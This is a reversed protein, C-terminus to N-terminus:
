VNRGWMWQSISQIFEIFEIFVYSMLVVVNSGRAGEGWLHLIALKLSSSM